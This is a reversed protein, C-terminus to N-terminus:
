DNLFDMDDEGDDIPDPNGASVTVGEFGLAVSYKKFKATKAKEGAKEGTKRVYEEHEIVGKVYCGVADAPDIEEVLFNNLCARIFRSAANAGIENVEGTSKNLTYFTEYHKQGEKSQLVFKMEGNIDNYDAEVVKLVIEGEPLLFSKSETLKFIAM